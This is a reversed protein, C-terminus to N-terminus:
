VCPIYLIVKTHLVTTATVDDVINVINTEGLGTKPKQCRQSQGGHHSPEESIASAAARFYRSRPPPPLPSRSILPPSNGVRCRPFDADEIESSDESDQTQTSQSCFLTIPKRHAKSRNMKSQWESVM